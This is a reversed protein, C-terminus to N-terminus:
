IVGLIINVLTTVDSVNIQGNADVDARFEDKEVVGLIMNVLTTVDTVNVSGDGNVDGRPSPTKIENIVLTMADLDVTVNYSGAGIKFSTAYGQVMPIATNLLEATVETDGDAEPGFRLQAIRSWEDPGEALGRTFGFYSYGENEGKTDITGTYVVNDETSLAYGANAFWGGVENVDGMVYVGSPEIPEYITGTFTIKRTEMNITITYIGAPAKFAVSTGDPGLDLEQNLVDNTIEFDASSAAGFRYPALAEWDQDGDMLKHTFSFYNYGFNSGDITVDTTYTINDETAMQVGVNTAWQNGNVEGLIFVDNGMDIVDGLDTFTVTTGGNYDYVRKDVPVLDMTQPGDQGENFILGPNTSNHDYTFTYYETGNVTATELTSIEKGPWSDFYNGAADWAWINGVSTKTIYITGNFATPQDDSAQKLSVKIIRTETNFEFTYTGAKDFITYPSDATGAELETETDLEVKLNTGGFRYSKIFDWGSNDNTEALASTLSYYQQGTKTVELDLTYNNEDVQTFQVGKSPDWGDPSIAGILWLEANANFSLLTMLLLSFLTFSKKM